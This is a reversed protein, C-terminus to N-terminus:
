PGDGHVGVAQPEEGRPGVLGKEYILREYYSLVRQSVQSWSYQQACQRGRQGMQWRLDPDRLLQLLADALGESDEPLVLLGEVGHTLVSAYGEINGAVIPRGAAMAELLVIGQSEFGTAPFCCIDATAYFRPVEEVPVFGAFVVDPVRHERVWREYGRRLRTEPGVILLRTEPMHARVQAFARLLYKVGKRKELRGLFLINLKGDRFEAFPEEGAAFREVEVGNPILNYYGPFYRGVLRAAATSVAIKGDLRRFWRRLLRRGYTYLPQGRERAAHFTGVNVAESYRLFQIPLVPCFPEHVHVIDFKERALVERVRPAMRLSLSIRAVSGSAPVGVPRGRIILGEQQVPRSAPAIIRVEHGRAVFHETLHSIHSNVGGPVAFDYPSVLAVKM